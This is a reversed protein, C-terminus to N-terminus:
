RREASPHLISQQIDTALQPTAAAPRALQSRGLSFIESSWMPRLPLLLVFPARAERGVIWLKARLEPVASSRLVQASSRPLQPLNRVGCSVSSPTTAASPLLLASLYVSTFARGYTDLIPLPLPRQSYSRGSRPASRKAKMWAMQGRASRAQRLRSSRGVGERRGHRSVTARPAHGTDGAYIRNARLSERCLVADRRCFDVQSSSRLKRYASVRRSPIM